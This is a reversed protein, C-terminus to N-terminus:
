PFPASCNKVRFYCNHCPGEQLSGEQLSAHHSQLRLAVISFLPSCYPDVAVVSLTSILQVTLLIRLHFCAAMCILIKFLNGGNSSQTCVKDVHILDHKCPLMLKLSDCTVYIFISQFVWKQASHKRWKPWLCDLRKFAMEPPQMCFTRTLM